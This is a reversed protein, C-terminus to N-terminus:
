HRLMAVVETQPQDNPNNRTVLYRFFDQQVTAGADRIVSVLDGMMLLFQSMSAVDLMGPHVTVIM